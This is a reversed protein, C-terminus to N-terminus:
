GRQQHWYRQVLSFRFQYNGEDNRCIYHDQELLNLTSRFVEKDLDPSKASVWDWLDGTAVAIGAALKDLVLLALKDQAGYYTKIRTECYGIEWVDYKRISAQIMAEVQATTVVTNLEKLEAVCHHIYFPIENVTVAIAQSVDELSDTAIGEGIILNRALDWADYAAFPGVEVLPMDNTPANRYGQTKLEAVVHHLGISGSYVMRIQSHEQRISRLTDLVAMAANAGKDKRINDIAFPLEDFFLLWKEEAEVQASLDRMMGQLHQKWSLGPKPLSVGMIKEGGLGWNVLFKQQRSACLTSSVEVEIRRLKGQWKQVGGLVESVKNFIEQVLEEPSEVHELDLYFATMGEPQHALMKKLVSTKGMRREATMRVSHRELKDWLTVILRDRGVIEEPKLSGGPNTRM